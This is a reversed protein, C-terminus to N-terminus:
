ALAPVAAILSQTYAHKPSTLIQKADGQEVIKGRYMVVVRHALYAVVSLNHTILLYSLNNEQQLTYLLDLIQKQISVDLASTPEDLILLQPSLSLARAICLRQKQGGSFQHPYRWKVDVPLGVQQLLQDVVEQAARRNKVRKQVLLGEALSDMVLMRPNLASAPDQFIYHMNCRMKRLDKRSLDSVMQNDFLVEGDIPNVLQLIGKATTTKGSGSEGVIAVTEGKFVEFSVGDVAKIKKDFTVKLADVKLLSKEAQPDKSESRVAQPLVASMLKKSYDHIPAKFFVDSAAREVTVGKELVIVEDAMASIVSLDHGIFLLACNKEAILQKLLRLVQAQITVDLATTPEDAIIIDPEAAVAMAIMARQRMGGSLQHPYAGYTMVPDAIGVSDLLRLCQQRAAKNSQAAHFRLVEDIQEGVTLVPNFASLADQFIMSIKRGRVERMKRESFDLLSQDNFNIQSNAGVLAGSPLLQLLSLGALTKGSGSEGVLGVCQGAHLDLNFDSLVTLYGEKAPFKITLNRVSLIPASQSKVQTRKQM